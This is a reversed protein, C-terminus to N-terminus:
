SVAPCPPSQPLNFNSNYIVLKLLLIFFGSKTHAFVRELQDNALALSLKDTTRQRSADQYITSSFVLILLHGPPLKPVHRVSFVCVYLARKVSPEYNFLNGKWRGSTTRPTPSNKKLHQGHALNRRLCMHRYLRLMPNPYSFGEGLPEFPSLPLPM